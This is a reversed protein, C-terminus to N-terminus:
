ALLEAYLARIDRELRDATFSRARDRAAAGMAARRADDGLLASMADAFAVPDGAPVVLGTVDDEVVTRVGGVDTAVAGVGCAAAEILAVPTGENRSSLVALDIDALAAPMDHWWGVFHVRSALGLADVRRRLDDELEGGGLVALHVDPVRRVADFLTVHDKIPVLRGVVAALLADAPLGIASRLAGSPETVALHRDLDLGLPIVRYQEPRGIGLDLLEDRVHPSVAIFTDTVRALAREALVFAREVPKSFYGELVHGHFTHVTRPRHRLSRAATRGAFGAKAMHTHLLEIREDRLLARVARVARADDVPSPQRRLPVDIVDVDPERLEGESAGTQGAALLAHHDRRLRRTLLLAQRAPGGINLRTILRLIRRRETM